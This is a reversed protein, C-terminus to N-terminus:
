EEGKGPSPRATQRRRKARAAEDWLLASEREFSRRGAAVGTAIFATLVLTGGLVLLQGAAFRVSPSFGHDDALPLPYHDLVGSIEGLGVLSVLVWAVTALLYTAYRSLLSSAIVVLVLASYILPNELGGSFHVLAALALLDVTIQAGAFEAARLFESEGDMGWFERPILRDALTKRQRPRRSSRRTGAAMAAVSLVLNEAALWLRLLHIPALALREGGSVGAGPAGKRVTGREPKFRWSVEALLLNYLGLVALVICVPLWAVPLAFVHDLIELVVVASMMGVWRLTILWELRQVVETAATLASLRDVPVEGAGSAPRPVM